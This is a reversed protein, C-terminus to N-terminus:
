KVFYRLYTRGRRIYHGDLALVGTITHNTTGDTVTVTVEAGAAALVKKYDDADAWVEFEAWDARTM